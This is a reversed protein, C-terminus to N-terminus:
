YGAPAPSHRAKRAPSSQRSAPKTRNRTRACGEIPSAPHVCLGLGAETESSDLRATPRAWTLRELQDPGLRIAFTEPYRSDVYSMLALRVLPM